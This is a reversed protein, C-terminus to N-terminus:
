FDSDDDYWDEDDEEIDPLNEDLTGAEKQDAIWLLLNSAAIARGEQTTSDHYEQEFEEPWGDANGDFIRGGQNVSIGMADVAYDGVGSFTKNLDFLNFMGEEPTPADCVVVAGAICFRTGCYGNSDTDAFQTQDYGVYQDRLFQATKRLLAVEKETSM